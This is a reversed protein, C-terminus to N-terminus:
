TTIGRVIRAAQNVAETTLKEMLSTQAPGKVKASEWSRSRALALKWDVMPDRGVKWGKMAYFNFFEEAHADPLDRRACELRVEELTPAKFKTRKPKDVGLSMELQLEERIVRMKAVCERFAPVRFSPHREFLDELAQAVELIM